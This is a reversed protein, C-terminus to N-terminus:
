GELGLGEAWAIVEAEGSAVANRSLSLTNGSVQANPQLRAITNLTNSFGSGGHTVFPIITKGSLDCSELFTYVPMPLDAWWNPFGLIVTDYRDLDDPLAVLEPRANMDKEDAAADLLPDHDLPYQRVTEIRFLEGGVTQQILGAVYETNGLKEGDTVVISAGAVADVTDLAEPLSFYAILIHSGADSPADQPAAANLGLGQVWARVASEEERSRFRMGELWDGTGAADALLQGSEGLGSDSSTCFPVVTKGTFDNGAVFGDVPWAAIQWWIPYGIFVTDYSDWDAPTVEILETERLSLDDHEQVVRSSENRWNLDEDTYPEAPVLEFLDGGTEEAIYGAVRETSGTASYYVVLTKGTQPLPEPTPEATPEPNPAASPAAPPVSSVPANSQAGCGALSFLLAAAAAWAFYKKMPSGRREHNNAWTEKYLSKCVSASSRM